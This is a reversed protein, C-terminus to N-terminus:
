ASAAFREVPSRTLHLTSRGSGRVRGSWDRSEVRLSMNLWLPVSWIKLQAALESDGGPGNAWKLTIRVLDIEPGYLAKWRATTMSNLGGCAESMLQLAYRARRSHAATTEGQEHLKELAYARTIEPLQYRRAAPFSRPILLSKDILSELQSLVNCGGLCGDSVISAIAQLTFSGPYVSLQRLLAQEQVSLRAYSWELNASLSLHRASANRWGTMQLRFPGDLLEALERIGFTRVRAAALEIALPNNDLKHCIAAVSGVDADSFVFDPACSAARAVFLQIASFSLAHCASLDDVPEVPADLPTMFHVFEGNVRLPERSSILVCSNPADQMIREVVVSVAELVHECTDLILLLRSHGLSKTFTTLSDVTAVTIGQAMALRASVQEATFASALDIFRIGQAFHGVQQNAIALAVTSKGIGGPGTLTVLRQEVLQQGLRAILAARGIVDGRLRPLKPVVQLPLTAESHHNKVTVPAVFRYGRGPITLVYDGANDGLIRRLAVVQARLNCEEVVLKPWVVAMLETKELLESPRTVLAILLCLARNGITVPESNNLLARQRPILTFQGFCYATDQEAVHLPYRAPAPYLHELNQYM